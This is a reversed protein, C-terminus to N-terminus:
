SAVGCLEGESHIWAVEFWTMDKFCLEKITTKINNGM